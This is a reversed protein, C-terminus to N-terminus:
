LLPTLLMWVLAALTTAAGLIVGVRHQLDFVRDPNTTKRRCVDAIVWVLIASGAVLVWFQIPAM